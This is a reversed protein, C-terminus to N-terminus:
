SFNLSEAAGVRLPYEDYLAKASCLAKSTWYECGTSMRAPTSPHTSPTAPLLEAADAVGFSKGANGDQHLIKLQGIKSQRPQKSAM